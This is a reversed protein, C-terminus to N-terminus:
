PRAGLTVLGADECPKLVCVDNRDVRNQILRRRAEPEEAHGEEATGVECLQELFRPPQGMGLGGAAAQHFREVLEALPQGQSGALVDGPAPGTPPPDCRDLNGERVRSRTARRSGSGSGHVITAPM